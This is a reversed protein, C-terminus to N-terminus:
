SYKLFIQTSNTPLNFLVGVWWGMIGALKHYQGEKDKFVTIKLKQLTICNDDFYIFFFSLFKLFFM